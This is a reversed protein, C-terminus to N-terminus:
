VGAGREGAGGEGVLPPNVGEGNVLAIFSTMVDRCSM